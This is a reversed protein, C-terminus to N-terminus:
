SLSPSTTWIIVCNQVLHQLLLIKKEPVYDGKGVTLLLYHIAPYRCQLIAICSSHLNWQLINMPTQSRSRCASRSVGPFRRLLASNNSVEMASSDAVGNMVESFMKWFPHCCVVDVAWGPFSITISM